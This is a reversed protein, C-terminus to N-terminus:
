CQSRRVLSSGCQTITTLSKGTEALRRERRSRVLRDLLGFSARYRAQTFHPETPASEPVPRDPEPTPFKSHDKLSEWDLAANRDLASKLTHGIASLAREAQERREKAEERGEEALERRALRENTIAEREQQKQWREEWAQQQAQAKRMVVLNNSGRIHRYAGLGEHRIEVEYMLRPPM